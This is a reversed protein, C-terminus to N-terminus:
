LKKMYNLVDGIDELAETALQRLLTDNAAHRFEIVDEPIRMFQIHFHLICSTSSTKKLCHCSLHNQRLMDQLLIMPPHCAPFYQFLNYLIDEKEYQMVMPSIRCHFSLEPGSRGDQFAIQVTDNISISSLIYSLLTAIYLFSFLDARIHIFRWYYMPPQMFICIDAFLPSRHIATLMAEVVEPLDLVDAILRDEDRRYARLLPVDHHELWMERDYLQDLLFTSYRVLNPFLVLIPPFQEPEIPGSPQQVVALTLTSLPYKDQLRELFTRDVVVTIWGFKPIHPFVTGRYREALFGVHKQTPQILLTPIAQHDVDMRGRCFKRFRDADFPTLKAYFDTEMALCVAADEYITFHGSEDAEYYCILRGNEHFVHCNIKYPAYEWSPVQSM